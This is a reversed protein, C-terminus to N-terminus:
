TSKFDNAERRDMRDKEGEVHIKMKEIKEWHVRKFYFARNVRFAM